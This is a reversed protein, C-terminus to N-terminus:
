ILLFPQVESPSIHGHRKIHGRGSIQIYVINFRRQDSYELVYSQTPAKSREAKQLISLYLGFDRERQTHVYEELKIVDRMEILIKPKMIVKGWQYRTSSYYPVLSEDGLHSFFSPDFLGLWVEYRYTKYGRTNNRWVKPGVLRV